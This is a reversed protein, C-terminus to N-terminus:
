NNLHDLPYENLPAKSNLPVSFLGMAKTIKVMSQLIIM